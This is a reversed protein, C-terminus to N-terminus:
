GELGTPKRDGSDVLNRAHRHRRPDRYVQQLRVLLQLDLKRLRRIPFARTWWLALHALLVGEPLLLRGIKTDSAPIEKAVIRFTL